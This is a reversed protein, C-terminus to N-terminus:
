DVSESPYLEEIIKLLEIAPLSMRQDKRYVLYLWHFDESIGSIPVIALDDMFAKTLWTDCVLSLIDPNAVALSCLSIEDYQQHVIDLDYAEFAARLESGMPGDDTYTAVRYGELENPSISGRNALPHSKKVVAVLPSSWLPKFILDNYGALKGAFGLDLVGSQVDKLVHKTTTQKIHIDIDFDLSARLSYVLESWNKNQCSYVVGMTLVHNRLGNSARAKAIGKELLDLSGKVYVYVTEGEPTLRASRKNHDFLAFGLENELNRIAISLTSQAIGLNQSAKTYSKAEVLEKFYKLHNNNM